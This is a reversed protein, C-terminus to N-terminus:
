QMLGWHLPNAHMAVYPTYLKGNCMICIISYITKEQMPHSIERIEVSVEEEIM